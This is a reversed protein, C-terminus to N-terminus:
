IDKGDFTERRCADIKRFEPHDFMIKDLIEDVLYYMEEDTVIEKILNYESLMDLLYIIMNEPNRIMVKGGEKLVQFKIIFASVFVVDNRIMLQPIFFDKDDMFLFERIADATGSTQHELLFRFADMRIRDDRSSIVFIPADKLGGVKEIIGFKQDLVDIMSAVFKAAADNSSFINLDIVV